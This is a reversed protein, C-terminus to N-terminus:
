REVSGPGAAGIHGGGIGGPGPGAGGPGPLGGRRLGRVRENLAERLAYLRVLEAPTLLELLAEQEERVLRREEEWITRWEELIEQAEDESLLPTADRPALVGQTVIRRRLQAERLALAEREEQYTRLVEGLRRQEDASLDLRERIIEGFRARVRRELEMRGPPVPQASAQPPPVVVGALAALILVGRWTRWWTRWAHRSM